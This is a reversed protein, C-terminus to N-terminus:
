MTNADITGATFTLTGRSNGTGSANASARGIFMTSVRADVTGGTFDATGQCSTTGSNAEGDGIAWLAIRGSGDTARLFAVPDAFVPNFLLQCATEKEMGVSLSTTFIANTQGLYLRSGGGNNSGSRGVEIGIASSSAAASSSRIRNTRALYVWGTNRNVNLLGPPDARGIVVQDVDLILTDLGSLDLTARRSSGDGGQRVVVDVAPNTVLLTGGGTIAVDLNQAAIAETGVTFSGLVSLSRGAEIQTTHYFLNSQGYQLSLVAGGFLSNVTNNINLPTPDAGDDFFKVDDASTPVVGGTWNGTTSWNLDVGSSGNWVVTDASAIRAALLMGALAMSALLYRTTTKM